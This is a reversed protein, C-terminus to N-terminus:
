FLSEEFSYGGFSYYNRHSNLKIFILTSTSNKQFFLKQVNFIVFINTLITNYSSKDSIQVVIGWTFLQKKIFCKM